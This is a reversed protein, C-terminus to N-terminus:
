QGSVADVIADLNLYVSLGSADVSLEFGSAELEAQKDEPLNFERYNISFESYKAIDDVFPSDIWQDAAVLVDGVGGSGVLDVGEVGLTVSKDTISLAMAAKLDVYGCYDGSLQWLRFQADMLGGDNAKLSDLTAEMSGSSTAEGDSDYSREIYGEALMREIIQQILEPHFQMGIDVGSPLSPRIEVAGNLPRVLNSQMGLAVTGYEPYILPGRALLKIDGNGFKWSELDFLPTDGYYYQVIETIVDDLYPEIADVYDQIFSLDDTFEFAIDLVESEGLKALVTTSEMGNDIMSLPFQYTGYGTGGYTGLWDLDIWMGFSMDLLLCDDCGNAGGIQILPIDPDVILTVELGEIDYTWSLEGLDGESVAEFLRNLSDQSLLISMPYPGDVPVSEMLEGESKLAEQYLPEYNGCDTYADISEQLLECGSFFSLIVGLVILRPGLRVKM